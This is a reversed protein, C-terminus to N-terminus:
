AAEARPRVTASTNAVKRAALWNDLDAVDYVVRRGLKIYLPGGGSCRLKDLSSKSLGIYTAAEAVNLKKNVADEPAM